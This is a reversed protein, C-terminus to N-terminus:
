SRKWVRRLRVMPKRRLSEAMEGVQWSSQEIRSFIWRTRKPMGGSSFGIYWPSFSNVENLEAVLQFLMVKSGRFTESGGECYIHRCRFYLLAAWPCFEIDHSLYRRGFLARSRCRIENSCINNIEPKKTSKRSTSLPQICKRSNRNEGNHIIQDIRQEEEEIKQLIGVHSIESIEQFLSERVGFHSGAM